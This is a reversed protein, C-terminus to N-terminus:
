GADKLTDEGDKLVDERLIYVDMDAPLIDQNVSKNTVLISVTNNKLKMKRLINCIGETLYSTIVIIESNTIGESIDGTYDEFDRIRRLEMKALIALLSSIHSRGSAEQTYIMQREGDVTSGNSALRAPIGNRLAIDFITAAAKIGLEIFDKYVADFYENEISQVNLIVSLGFKSTFDEQRVMLRGTRATSNWHIKKMPDRTTYERVGSIIFPDEIIWRKVITDGQLHNVPTFIKQLEITQPYVQIEANVDVPLSNTANGLLDGSVLTVKDIRFVGRKLCKLSWRRTVKQYSRLFFSSTVHRNEQAVVSRTEAFELWRSSNIEVKLWPVPILKKNYITEVLFIEDGEHAEGTSFECKYDLKKFATRKFLTAQLLVTMAIILALALGEM